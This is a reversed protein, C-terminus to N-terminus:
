SALAIVRGAASDRAALENRAEMVAAAHAAKNTRSEEHTLEALRIDQLIESRARYGVLGVSDWAGAFKPQRYMSMRGVPLKCAAKFAEQCGQLTTDDFVIFEGNVKFYNKM